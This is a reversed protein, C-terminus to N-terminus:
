EHIKKELFTCKKSNSKLFSKKFLTEERENSVNGVFFYM